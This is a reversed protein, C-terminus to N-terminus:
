FVRVGITESRPFPYTVWTWSEPETERLQAELFFCVLIFSHIIDGSNLVVKKMDIQGATWFPQELSRRINFELFTCVLIVMNTEQVSNETLGPGHYNVVSFM